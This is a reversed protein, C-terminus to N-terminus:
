DARFWGYRPPDHVDIEAVRATDELNSAAGKFIPLRRRAPDFSGVRIQYKGGPLSEPLVMVYRERIIDGVKWKTTSFREVRPWHEQRYAIHGASDTILVFIQLEGASEKLCQWYSILEFSSPWDLVERLSVGLLEIQGGFNVTYARQIEGTPVDRLPVFPATLDYIPWPWAADEPTLRGFRTDLMRFFDHQKDGDVIFPDAYYRAGLQSLRTLIAPDYERNLMWGRRDAFYLMNPSGGSETIILDERATLRNLLSGLDRPWRDHQYFPLASYIAGATFLILIAAV